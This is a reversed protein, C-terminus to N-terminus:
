TYICISLSKNEYFFKPMQRKSSFASILREMNELTSQDAEYFTFFFRKRNINELVQFNVLVAHFTLDNGFPLLISSETRYFNRRTILM